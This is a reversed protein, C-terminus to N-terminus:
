EDNIKGSIVFREYGDNQPISQHLVVDELIHSRSLNELVKIAHANEAEIRIISGNLSFSLIRITESSNYLEKMLDLISVREEIQNDVIIKEKVEENLNQQEKLYLEKLAVESQKLKQSEKYILFDSVSLCIILLISLILNIYSKNSKHDEFIVASKIKKHYEIDSLYSILYNHDKFSNIISDSVPDFIFVEKSNNIDSYKEELITLDELCTKLMSDSYSQLYIPFGNKIIQIEIWGKGVAIFIGDTRFQSVLFVPSLLHNYSKKLTQIHETNAAIGIITRNQIKYDIITSNENGPYFSRLAFKIANYQYKPKTIPIDLVYHRVELPSVFCINKNNLNSKKIAM